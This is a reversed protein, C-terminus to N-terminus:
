IYLYESITSINELYEVAAFNTAASSNFVENMDERFGKMDRDSASM